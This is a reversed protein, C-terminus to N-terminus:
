KHSMKHIFNVGAQTETQTHTQKKKIQRILIRSVEFFNM